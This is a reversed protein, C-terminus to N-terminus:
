KGFIASIDDKQVTELDGSNLKWHSLSFLLLDLNINAIPNQVLWHKTSLHNDVTTNTILVGSVRTYSGYPNIFFGNGDHFANIDSDVDRFGVRTKGFLANTVNFDCPGFDKTSNICILYPLTMKGYGHAKHKLAERIEDDTTIIHGKGIVGAFSRSGPLGRKSPIKPLLRAKIYVGDHDYIVLPLGRESAEKQVTDADYRSIEKEFFSTIKRISPNGPRSINIETMGVLFDPSRLDSLCDMVLAERKESKVEQDSKGVAVKAEVIIKVGAKEILFDPRKTSDEISPHIIITFGERRFLEHLFLEYYAPDFRDKLREKLEHKDPDPYSSFWSELTDRIVVIDPRASRNLYSYDEDTYKALEYDTRTFDDFLKM